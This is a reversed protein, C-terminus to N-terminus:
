NKRDQSDDRTKRKRDTPQHLLRWVRVVESEVDGEMDKNELTRVLKDLGQEKIDGWSWWSAKQELVSSMKMEALWELNSTMDDIGYDFLLNFFGERFPPAIKNKEM